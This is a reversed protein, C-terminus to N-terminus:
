IVNLHLFTVVFENMKQGVVSALAEARLPLPFKSSFSFLLPLTRAYFRDMTTGQAVPFGLTGMPKASIWTWQPSTFLSRVLSPALPSREFRCDFNECFCWLLLASTVCTHYPVHLFLYMTYVNHAWVMWQSHLVLLVSARARESHCVVHCDLYNYHKSRLFWM